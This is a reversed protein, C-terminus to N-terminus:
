WIFLYIFIFLAPSIFGSELEAEKGSGARPGGWPKLFSRGPHGESGQFEIGWLLIGWKGITV